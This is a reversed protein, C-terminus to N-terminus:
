GLPLPVASLRAREHKPYQPRVSDLDMGVLAFFPLLQNILVPVGDKDAQGVGDQSRLRDVQVAPETFEVAKQDCVEDFGTCSM